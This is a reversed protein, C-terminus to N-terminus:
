RPTPEHQDWPRTGLILPDAGQHASDLTCASLHQRHVNVAALIAARLNGGVDQGHELSRFRGHIGRIESRPVIQRLRGTLSGGMHASRPLQTPHQRQKRYVFRAVREM